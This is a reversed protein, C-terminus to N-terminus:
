TRTRHVNVFSYAHHVRANTCAHTFDFTRICVRCVIMDVDVRLSISSCAFTVDNTTCHAFTTTACFIMAYARFSIFAVHTTYRDCYSLSRADNRRSRAVINCFMARACIDDRLSSSLAFTLRICFSYMANQLVCLNSM